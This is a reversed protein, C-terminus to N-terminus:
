TVKLRATLKSIAERIREVLKKTQTDLYKLADRSYKIKTAM